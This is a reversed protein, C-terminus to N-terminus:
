NHVLEFTKMPGYTKFGLKSYLPIGAQSATLLIHSRSKTSGVEILKKTMLKGLGLGRYSNLTGIMHLGSNGDTDSFVIGCTAYDDRYKGVFIKTMDSHLLGYITTHKVEYGFAETAIRAFIQAKTKDEVELIESFDQDSKHYNEIELGMATLTNTIKFGVSTLKQELQKHGEITLVPPIKGAKMKKQLSTLNTNETVGFVKSPWSLNSPRTYIYEEEINLFEGMAGIHTWFQTHNKIIAQLM